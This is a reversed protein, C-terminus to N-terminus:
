GTLNTENDGTDFFEFGGLHTVGDRQYRSGRGLGQRAKLFNLRLHERTQERNFGILVIRQAVRQFFEFEIVGRQHVLGFYGLRQTKTKTTSEEAQQVHFDHLLTELAFEIHVENGGCGRHDVFDDHAIAGHDHDVIRRLHRIGRPDFLHAFRDHGNIQVHRLFIHARDDRQARLLAADLDVHGVVAFM